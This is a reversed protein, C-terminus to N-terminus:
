AAPIPRQFLRPCTRERLYLELGPAECLDVSYRMAQRHPVLESYEYVSLPYRSVLSPFKGYSLAQRFMTLSYKLPMHGFIAVFENLCMDRKSHHMGQKWQATQRDNSIEKWQGTRDLAFWDDVVVPGRGTANAIVFNMLIDDCNMVSSVIDRALRNPESNYARLYRRHYVSGSPLLMSGIGHYSSVGTQNMYTYTGNQYLHVRLQPNWGVYHDFYHARWLKYLTNISHVPHLIDDDVNIMCDYKIENFDLYRNNMDNTAMRKVIIPVKGIRHPLKLVDTSCPQQVVIIQSPFAVGAYHALANDLVELRHCVPMVFTCGDFSAFDSSMSEFKYDLRSALLPNHVLVLVDSLKEAAFYIRETLDVSSTTIPFRSALSKGAQFKPHYMFMKTEAMYRLLYKYVSTSPWRNSLADKLIPDQSLDWALSWKMFKRWGPAAYIAGVDCASQRMIDGKPIQKLSTGPITLAIDNDTASGLCIGLVEDFPYQQRYFMSRILELSSELIVPSISVSDQIVLNFSDVHTPDWSELWAREESNPSPVIDLVVSSYNSRIRALVKSIKEITLDSGLAVKVVFSIKANPLWKNGATQLRALERTLAGITYEVMDVNRTVLITIRLDIPTQPITSRLIEKVDIHRVFNSSALAPHRLDVYVGLRHVIDELSNAKVRELKPRAPVAAPLSFSRILGHFVLISKKLENMNQEPSSELDSRLKGISIFSPAVRARTDNVINSGATTISRISCVTLGEFIFGGFLDFVHAFSTMSSESGRDARVPVQIFLDAIRSHLLVSRSGPATYPYVRDRRQGNVSPTISRNSRLGEDQDHRMFNVYMPHYTQLIDMLEAALTSGRQIIGSMRDDLIFEEDSRPLVLFYECQYLSRSLNFARELDRGPLEGDQAPALFRVDGDFSRQELPQAGAAVNSHLVVPFLAGWMEYVREADQLSAARGIVCVPQQTTRLQPALNRLCLLFAIILCAAAATSLGRGKTAAAAAVASGSDDDDDDDGNNGRTNAVAASTDDGSRSGALAKRRRVALGRELDRGSAESPTHACTDGAALSTAPAIQAALSPTVCHLVVHPSHSTSKKVRPSISSSSAPQCTYSQAINIASGHGSASTSMKGMVPLPLSPRGAFSNDTADCGSATPHIYNCGGM